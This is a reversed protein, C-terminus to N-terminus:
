TTNQTPLLFDMQSSPSAVLLTCPSSYGSLISLCEYNITASTLTICSSITSLLQFVELSVPPLPLSSNIWRVQEEYNLLETHLSLTKRWEDRHWKYKINLSKVTKSSAYKYQLCLMPLSVHEPRTLQPVQHGSYVRWPISIILDALSDLGSSNEQQRETNKLKIVSCM